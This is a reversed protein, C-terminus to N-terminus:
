EDLAPLGRVEFEVSDVVNEGGDAVSLTYEGEVPVWSAYGDRWVLPEGNLRWRLGGGGRALFFVAQMEPPIDPDLAIVTGPPPYLIRRTCRAYAQAEGPPETGAIFWDYRPPEGGAPFSVRKRVLGPPRVAELGPAREGGRLLATDPPPEKQLASMVDIWVPAAGSMGSVNWM